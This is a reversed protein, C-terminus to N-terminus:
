RPTDSSRHYYLRGGRADFQVKFQILLSVVTVKAEKKKEEQSHIIKHLDTSLQASINVNPIYVQCQPIKRARIASNIVELARKIRGSSTRTRFLGHPSFIGTAPFFTFQSVTKNPHNQASNIIKIGQRLILCKLAVIKNRCGIM